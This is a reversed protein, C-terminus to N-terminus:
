NLKSKMVTALSGAPVAADSIAWVGMRVEPEEVVAVGGPAIEFLVYDDTLAAFTTLIPEISVKIKNTTSRNTLTVKRNKQNPSMLQTAAANAPVLDGRLIFVVDQLTDIPRDLATAFDASTNNTQPNNLSAM